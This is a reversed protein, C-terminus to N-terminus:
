AHATNHVVRRAQEMSLHHQQMELMLQGSTRERGTAVVAVLQEKLGYLAIFNKEELSGILDIQDWKEPHGLYDYRTGYHQTWFFPIRDFPENGGLMNVAAVRGQQQAVRWHEIRIPRGEYPFTAIDGVAYINDAAAMQENVQLSGDEALPLDHIFSTVPEIGTALLVLHTPVRRGDELVVAEVREGGEFAAAKGDIFNVGQAEHLQRFYHAIRPGFQTEFPLPHPAIVTVAIGRKRLAAAMEMGIFNSGVIVLEKLTDVAHLLTKEHQLNRLVHIGSLQVGPLDPVQPKGGSAILLKDFPIRRQNELVVVQNQSDIHAVQAVLREVHTDETVEDDLLAPVEDVKMQGMPVFKSLATRDYGAQKERDIVVIKGAYDREHLAALAASGAAGSGIIVLTGRDGVDEPTVPPQSAQPDVWVMGNEVKVAYRTLGELAPPEMLQGDDLSYVAKHWPCVLQGDCIAGEALPAGAHPCTAQFANVRDGRKVLMIKTDDLTISKPQSDTLASLALAQQYAM